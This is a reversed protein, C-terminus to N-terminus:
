AHIGFDTEIVNKLSSFNGATFESRNNIFWVQKCLNLSTHYDHTTYIILKNESQSLTHLLETIIKKNPIDLSATPEDLLILPSEYIFARAIAVLQKEGDSLHLYDKELLPQLKLKEIWTNTIDHDTAKYLGLGSTFGLRATLLFEHTSISQGIYERAGIYTCTKAWENIPLSGLSKGFASIEGRNQIHGAITKLLTTKGAGNRGFFVITQGSQETLTVPKNLLQANGAKIEIDRLELLKIENQECYFLFLLHLM